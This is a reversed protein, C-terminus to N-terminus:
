WEAGEMLKKLFWRALFGPRKSIPRQTDESSIAKQYNM